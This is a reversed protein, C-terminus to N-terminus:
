KLNNKDEKKKFALVKNVLRLKEPSIAPLCLGQEWNRITGLPVGFKIAFGEQTLGLFNRYALYEQATFLPVEDVKRKTKSM